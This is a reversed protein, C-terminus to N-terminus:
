SAVRGLLDRCAAECRRCAEACVRCHEMHGAHRECEEACTACAEACAELISRLPLSRAHVTRSLTAGTAACTDACIENLSICMTLDCVREEGLCADAGASGTQACGFCAEICGSLKGVDSPPEGPSTRIMEQVHM